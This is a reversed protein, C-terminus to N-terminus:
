TRRLRTITNKEFDIEFLGLHKRNRSSLDLNYGVDFRVRNEEIWDRIVTFSYQGLFTSERKKLKNFVEVTIKPFRGGGIQRLQLVKKRPDAKQQRQM